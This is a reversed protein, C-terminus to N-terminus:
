HKNLYKEIVFTSLSILVCLGLGGLVWLPTNYLVGLMGSLAVVLILLIAFSPMVGKTNTIKDVRENWVLREIADELDKGYSPVDHVTGDIEKITINYRYYGPNDKSERILQAHTARRREKKMIKYNIALVMLTLGLLNM